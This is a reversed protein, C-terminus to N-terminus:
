EPIDPMSIRAKDLNWNEGAGDRKNIYHVVVWILIALLLCILKPRRDTCLAERSKKKLNQINVM